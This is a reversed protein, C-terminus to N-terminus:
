LTEEGYDFLLDNVEPVTMGNCVGYIIICDAPEKVYLQAYGAGKLLTQVEDLTLGMALAVCILKSRDPVRLGSFIQYGYVESLESRKIVESKKLGHEKLLRDLIDKLELTPFNDANENYFSAFDSCDKLEELMKSTDKKM